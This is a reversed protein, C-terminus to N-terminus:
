TDSASSYRWQEPRECLGAQVPNREIYNITAFFHHEDRIFRDFYDQQWFQGTKDLVKNARSASYSKWSHVIKSVSQDTNPTILTHVHNQMIVWAHLQYRQQSEGFLLSQKVIEAIANSSLWASGLGKDEYNEIRKRLIESRKQIPLISFEREWDQIVSQPVSDYLRFTISQCLLNGDFHPLYGRHHFIADDYKIRPMAGREM